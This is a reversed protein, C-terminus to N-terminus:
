HFLAQAEESEVFAKVKERADPDNRMTSKTPNIVLEDREPDIAIFCILDTDLKLKFERVATVSEPHKKTVVSIWGDNKWVGVLQDKTVLLM